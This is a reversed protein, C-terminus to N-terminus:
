VFIASKCLLLRLSLSFLFLLIFRLLLLLIHFIHYDEPESRFFIVYDRFFLKMFFVFVKALKIAFKHSFKYREYMNRHIFQANGSFLNNISYM